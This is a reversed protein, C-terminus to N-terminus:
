CARFSPGWCIFIDMDLNESGTFIKKYLLILCLILSKFSVDPSDYHDGFTIMHVKILSLCLPKSVSVCLLLCMFLLLCHPGLPLSSTIHAYPLSCGSRGYGGSAPPLLSWNEWLTRLPSVARSVIANLGRGDLHILSYTEITKLGGLKHYNTLAAAPFSYLFTQHIWLETKKSLISNSRRWTFYSLKALLIEAHSNLKLVNMILLCCPFSCNFLLGHYGLTKQWQWYPSLTHTLKNFFKLWM